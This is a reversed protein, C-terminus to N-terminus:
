ILISYMLILRLFFVHGSYVNKERTSPFKKEFAEDLCVMNLMGTQGEHAKPVNWM